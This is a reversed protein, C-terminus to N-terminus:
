HNIYTSLLLQQFAVTCFVDSIVDIENRLLSGEKVGMKSKEHQEVSVLNIINPGQSDCRACEVQTLM